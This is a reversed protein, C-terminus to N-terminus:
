IVSYDNAIINAKFVHKKLFGEATPRSHTRLSPCRSIIVNKSMKHQSFPKTLKPFFAFHEASGGIFATSNRKGNRGAHGCQSREDKRRSPPNRGFPAWASAWSGRLRHRPLLSPALGRRSTCRIPPTWFGSSLVQIHSGKDQGM